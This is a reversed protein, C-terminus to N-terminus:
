SLRMMQATMSANDDVAKMAKVQMEFQRALTIQKVLADVPNVNSTELAGSVLTTNADASAPIGNRTRMMGDPGKSLENSAPNVLKIRDVSVLATASQGVPRISITGDVGIELKEASPVIIPGGGSGLVPHGAGTTLLGGTSIRLDGARTYAESGDKAQVAIWGDGKIAMDLERGTSMIKGTSFDTGPNQAVSNVRSPYGQGEIPVNLFNNLDARFGTTSVNALNHSNVSQALMTQKAGTMAVYLMRDM